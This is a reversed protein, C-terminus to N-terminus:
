ETDHSSDDPSGSNICSYTTDPMSQTAKQGAAECEKGSHFYTQTFGGGNALALILIWKM